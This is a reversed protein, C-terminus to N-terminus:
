SIGSFDEDSSSALVAAVDAVTVVVKMSPTTWLLKEGESTLSKSVSM